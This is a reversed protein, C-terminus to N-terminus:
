ISNGYKNIFEKESYKEVTFGFQNTEAVWYNDDVKAYEGLSLGFTPTDVTFPGGYSNTWVWDKPNKLKCKPPKNHKPLNEYDKKTTLQHGLEGTKKNEFRDVYGEGIVERKILKEINEM